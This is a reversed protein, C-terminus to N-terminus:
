AGADGVVYDTVQGGFFRLVFWLAVSALPLCVWWPVGFGVPLLGLAIGVAGVVLAYPMQTRVHDAVDCQTALASLITTDSIPSSHDGWVAGALVSAVSAYLIHSYAFPNAPDALIAMGWALPIVLPFLIGMTGWSTGTSFAVVAALIFVLVPLLAIPLQGSLLEVLYEATGLETNIGALAWALVLIVIALVMTKVGIYWAELTEELSLIRQGVTLVVAVFASALSAWLMAQYSDATGIIDRISDGEGTIFLGLIVGVVLVAIPLAANILRPPTGEKPELVNVELELQAITSDPNYLKGTERARREAKLMPGFDRRSGAILFVFVLALIPYFSYPLANLFVSYAAENWGDIGAMATGIYGVQVGIWTTVLAIAAMPAATSDVLYALKERSIRLGDTIPRMTGGVVLTNAYDDFFIGCALFTTALQGRRASRAWGTVLHVIGQTGGNKQVIGVVGGIMLTFLVVAANDPDSLAELVYTDIVRFFGHFWGTAVDGTILWAGLWVGIVLAVVVQRFILAGAIAVLAPLIAMWTGVAGSAVEADGLQAAFAAVPILLVIFFLLYRRIM